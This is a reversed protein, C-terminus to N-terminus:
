TIFGTTKLSSLHRGLFYFHHISLLFLNDSIPFYSPSTPSLIHSPITENRGKSNSSYTPCYQKFTFNCGNCPPLSWPTPRSYLLPKINEKSVTAPKLLIRWFMWVQQQFFCTSRFDSAFLNLSALQFGNSWWYTEQNFLLISLFNNFILNTFSSISAKLTITPLDKIFLFLSAM